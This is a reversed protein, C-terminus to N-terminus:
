PREFKDHRSAFAREGLRRRRGTFESNNSSRSQSSRSRMVAERLDQEGLLWEDYGATYHSNCYAEVTLDGDDELYPRSRRSMEAIFYAVHVHLIWCRTVVAFCQNDQHPFCKSAINM